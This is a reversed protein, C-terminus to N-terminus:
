KNTRTKLENIKSNVAAKLGSGVSQAAVKSATKLGTKVTATTSRTVNQGLAHVVTRTSSSLRGAKTVGVKSLAGEAKGAVMGAVKDTALDITTNKIVNIANTEVTTELGTSSTTVKVTNNIVSAGVKIAARAGLSEVASGGCTIAGAVVATGISVVNINNTWPSSKGEIYNAAVQEGYDVAAGVVAGVINGWIKGDPDTRSIPNNAVYGYSTESEQDEEDANPDKTTFRGIVPDYHRAGYDEVNYNLDTQLEKGNYKYKQGKSVSTSLDEILMGFPYYHNEEVFSGSTQSIRLNDFNVEKESENSVYIYFYGNEPMDQDLVALKFTAAKKSM